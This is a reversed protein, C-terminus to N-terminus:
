RRTAIVRAYDTAKFEGPTKGQELKLDYSSFLDRIEDEQMPYSVIRRAYEEAM